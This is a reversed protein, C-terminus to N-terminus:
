VSSRLFTGLLATFQTSSEIPSLHAADLTEFLAGPVTDAILRSAANPTGTDHKGAVVLTRKAVSALKERVDFDRIAEAARAFGESPTRLITERIQEVVEPHRQRFEATLWRELTSDVISGAGNERVSAARQGFTPRADEPTFAPAGVVTLSDVLSGHDVAFQQAVMGGISLGVVHTSPAGLKHLLEALDDGLDAISFADRSVATEGHGRLDYRLVTYDNRFYGAQQDWVSLDGALQHIFTLWPGGGENSLVYRTDIGNITVQM